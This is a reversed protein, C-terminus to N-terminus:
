RRPRARRLHSAPWPRLPHLGPRDPDRRPLALPAARRRDRAARRGRRHAGARAASAGLGFGRAMVAEPAHGADLMRKSGVTYTAYSVGAGLALLVGLVSVKADSGALVLLVVGATALATSAAWRSTLPSGYVARGLLGALAPASGLAVVTGVAVGTDDVAAFFALQYGAIGVATALSRALARGRRM